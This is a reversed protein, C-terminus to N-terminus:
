TDENNPICYKDLKNVIWNIFILVTVFQARWRSTKSEQKPIIFLSPRKNLHKFLNLPVWFQSLVLVTKKDYVDSQRIVFFINENEWCYLKHKQFSDDSRYGQTHPLKYDPINFPQMQNPRIMWVTGTKASLINVLKLATEDVSFYVTNWLEHAVQRLILKEM